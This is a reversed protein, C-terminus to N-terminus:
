DKRREAYGREVWEAPGLLLSQVEERLTRALQTADAPDELALIDPLWSKIVRDIQTLLASPVGGREDHEVRWDDLSRLTDGVSCYRGDGSAECYDRCWVALDTLENGPTASLGEAALRELASSDM